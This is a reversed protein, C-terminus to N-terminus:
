VQYEYIDRYFICIRKKKTKKAHQKERVTPQPALLAARPVDRRMGPDWGFETATSEANLTESSARKTM